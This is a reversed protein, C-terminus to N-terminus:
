YLFTKRWPRPSSIDPQYYHARLIGDVLELRESRTITYIRSFYDKGSRFAAAARRSIPPMASIYYHILTPMLRLTSQCFRANSRRSRSCVALFFSIGLQRKDKMHRLFVGDLWHQLYSNAYERDHFLPSRIARFDGQLSLIRARM